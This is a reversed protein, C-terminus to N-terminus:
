FKTLMSTKTNLRELLHVLKSILRSRKAGQIWVRGEVSLLTCFSGGIGDEIILIELLPHSYPHENFWYRFNRLAEKASDYHETKKGERYYTLEFYIKEKDMIKLKLILNLKRKNLITDLM